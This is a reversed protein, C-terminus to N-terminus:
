PSSASPPQDHLSARRISCEPTLEYDHSHLASLRDQASATSPTHQVRHISYETYATSPTLEHDHCPSIPLSSKVNHETIITCNHVLFLSPPHLHSCHPPYSWIHSILPVVQRIANPLDRIPTTISRIPVRVQQIPSPLNVGVGFERLVLKEHHNAGDRRM